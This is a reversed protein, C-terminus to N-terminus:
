KNMVLQADSIQNNTVAQADSIQKSLLKIAENMDSSPAHPAVAVPKPIVKDKELKESLESFKDELSEM